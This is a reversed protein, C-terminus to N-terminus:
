SVDPEGSGSPPEPGPESDAAAGVAGIAALYGAQLDLIELIVPGDYAYGDALAREQVYSACAASAVVPPHGPEARDVATQLYAVSWELVRRVDSRRLGERARPSLGAVVWEISDEVGYIAINELSGRREQWGMAVAFVILLALLVLAVVVPTM